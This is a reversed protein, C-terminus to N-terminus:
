NLRANYVEEFFQRRSHICNTKNSQTSFACFSKIVAESIYSEQKDKDSTLYKRQNRKSDVFIM